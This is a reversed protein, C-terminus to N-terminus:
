YFPILIIKKIFQNKIIYKLFFRGKANLEFKLSKQNATNYYNQWNTIEFIEGLLKSFLNLNSNEVHIANTKLFEQLILFGKKSLQAHPIIKNAIFTNINKNNNDAKFFYDVYQSSITQKYNSEVYSGWHSFM